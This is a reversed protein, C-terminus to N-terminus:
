VGTSESSIGLPLISGTAPVGSSKVRKVAIPARIRSPEPLEDEAAAVVM